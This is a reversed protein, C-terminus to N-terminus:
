AHKLFQRAKIGENLLLDVISVHHDFPPHLQRYEPYGSYDAWEVAIGADQFLREDLYDRASPGSVYTDAGLQRCMGLLRDSRDGTLELENSWRFPTTIGLLKNIGTLFLHNIESLRQSAAAERYLGEIAPAVEAFGAAKGYHHTLTRWHTEAWAPDSVLVERILQLYKGTVQVPLTLWQVGQATKIRNRNRWDRKTYQADDYLVFTDVGAILDFYGKWPIYNSQVIAVRM